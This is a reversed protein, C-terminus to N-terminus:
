ERKSVPKTAKVKRELLTAHDNGHVTMAFGPEDCDVEALAAAHLVGPSAQCGVSLRLVWNTTL